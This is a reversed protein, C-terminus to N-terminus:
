IGLFPITIDQYLNIGLKSLNLIPKITATCTQVEVLSPQINRKSDKGTPARLQIISKPWESMDNSPIEFCDLNGHRLHSLINFM